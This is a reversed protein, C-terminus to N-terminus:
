TTTQFHVDFVESGVDRKTFYRPSSRKTSYNAIITKRTAEKDNNCSLLFLVIQQDQLDPLDQELLWAKTEDIDSQAVRGEQIIQTSTFGFELAM